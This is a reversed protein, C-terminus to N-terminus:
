SKIVMEEYSSLIVMNITNIEENTKASEILKDFQELNVLFENNLVSMEKIYLSYGDNKYLKSVKELNKKSKSIGVYVYYKDNEQTVIKNEISKTDLQMSNKNTYVGLQLFYVTNNSKKDYSSITKSYVVKATAIGLLMTFVVSLIIKKNMVMVVIM